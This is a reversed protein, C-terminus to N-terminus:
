GRSKFKIERLEKLDEITTDLQKLNVDVTPEGSKSGPRFGVFSGDDLTAELGGPWRRHPIVEAGETLEHFMALADDVEGTVERVGRGPGVAGILEGGPALINEIRRARGGRGLLRSVLGGRRWINGPGPAIAGLLAYRLAEFGEARSRRFGQVTAYADYGASVLEILVWIPSLGFPDSFNVPDGATFGYLNIGGALGIPDPQTFRGAMPDYYRNRRYLFGSPDRQDRLISGLWDGEGEAGLKELYSRVATSPWGIRV